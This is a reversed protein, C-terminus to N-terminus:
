SKNRFDRIEQIQDVIPSSELKQPKLVNDDFAGQFNPKQQLRIAKIGQDKNIFKSM